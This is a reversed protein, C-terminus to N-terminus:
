VIDPIFRNLLAPAHLPDGDVILPEPPPGPRWTERHLRAGTMPVARHLAELRETLREAPAALTAAAVVM